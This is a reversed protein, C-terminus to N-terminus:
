LILVAKDASCEGFDELCTEFDSDGTILLPFNSKLFLNLIMADPGRMGNKGMIRVMDGWLLPEKFIESTAGELIEVFNLGLEEETIKWESVLLAGTYKACFSKWDRGATLEVILTRLKKIQTENIKYSERDRINKLINFLELNEPGREFEDFLAVCASTLEKRLILDVFEMRSIVNAYIPVSKESLLDLVDNAKDFLRDDQYAVGYLFSTDAFCGPKCDTSKLFTSLEQPTRLLQM